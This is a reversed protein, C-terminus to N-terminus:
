DEALWQRACAQCQAPLESFQIRRKFAGGRGTYQVSSLPMEGTLGVGQPHFPLASMALYMVHGRNCSDGSDLDVVTWRDATDAGSDWASIHRGAVIEHKRRM